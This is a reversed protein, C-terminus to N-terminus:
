SSFLPFLKKSVTSFVSVDWIAVNAGGQYSICESKKDIGYVFSRVILDLSHLILDLSRLIFSMCGFSRGERNEKAKFLTTFEQFNNILIAVLDKLKMIVHSFATSSMSNDALM